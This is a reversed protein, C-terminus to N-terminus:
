TRDTIEIEVKEIKDGRKVKQVAEFGSTTYGFVTYNGDLFPVDALTIYFQSGSSDKKPNVHDPLRAWALAGKTHKLGIEAPVTYGTGGTGTGTPDGGQIVFGPEVRHFTLSDYFGGQALQMFNTVSLPAKDARLECCIVGHTTYIKATYIKNEDFQASETPAKFTMQQTGKSTLPQAHGIIFLSASLCTSYFMTRLFNAAM